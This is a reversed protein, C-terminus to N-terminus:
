ARRLVTSVSACIPGGINFTAAHDINPVQLAEPVDGVLQQYCWGPM